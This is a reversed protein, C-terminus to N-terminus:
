SGSRMSKMTATWGIPPNLNCSGMSKSNAPYNSHQVVSTSILIDLDDFEVNLSEPRNPDGQSEAVVFDLSFM